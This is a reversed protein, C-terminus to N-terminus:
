NDMCVEYAYGFNLKLVEIGEVRIEVGGEKREDRRGRRREGRGSGGESVMGMEWAFESLMEEREVLSDRM